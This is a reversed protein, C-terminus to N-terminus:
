LWKRVVITGLNTNGALDYIKVLLLYKRPILITDDWTWIWPEESINEELRYDLSFEVSHIGSTENPSEITVTITGIVLPFENPLSIIERDMIYLGGPLPKTINVLPDTGDIKVNITQQVEHNGAVDTAYFSLTHNGESSISFSEEYSIWSGNGIRYLLSAIGSTNDIADLYITVTDTYWGNQGQPGMLTPTTQPPTNDITFNAMSSDTGINDSSDTANVQIRYFTGDPLLSTNFNYTGDNDEGASIVTYNAGGDNSYSLDIDGNLNPDSKDMATWTINIRGHINEGGSPYTLNVLPPMTDLVNFSYTPTTQINGVTDNARIYYTYIGPLSFTNMYYYFSPSIHSMKEEILIQEPTTIIILVTHVATDDSVNCMINLPEAAEPPDPFHLVQTIEPPTVDQLPTGSPLCFIFGCLLSSIVLLSYLKPYYELISKKEM